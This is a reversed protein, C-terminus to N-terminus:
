PKMRLDDFFSDFFYESVLLPRQALVFVSRRGCALGRPNPKSQRQVQSHQRVARSRGFLYAGLPKNGLRQLQRHRGQLSARPILTRAYVRAQEGGWLEVERTWLWQSYPIGLLRYEDRQARSWGQRLVLVRFDPYLQRLAQTLSGRLNLWHRTLPDIRRLFAPHSSHWHSVM